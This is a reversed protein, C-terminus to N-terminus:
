DRRPGSRPTTMNIRARTQRRQGPAEAEPVNPVSPKMKFLSLLLLRLEPIKNSVGTRSLLFPCDRQPSSSSSTILLAGDDSEGITHRLTARCVAWEISWRDSAWGSAVQPSFRSAVALSRFNEESSLRRHWWVRRNSRCRSILPLLIRFVLSLSVSM